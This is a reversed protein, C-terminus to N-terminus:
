LGWYFATTIYRTFNIICSSWTSMEFLFSSLNIFVLAFFLSMCWCLFPSLLMLTQFIVLSMCCYSAPPSFTLVQIFLPSAIMLPFHTCSQSPKDLKAHPGIYALQVSLIPNILLFTNAKNKTPFFSIITSRNLTGRTSM